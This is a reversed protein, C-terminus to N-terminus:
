EEDFSPLEMDESEDDHNEEVSENTNLKKLGKVKNGFEDLRKILEDMEHLTTVRNKEFDKVFDIEDGKAAKLLPKLKPVAYKTVVKSGLYAGFAIPIANSKSHRGGLRKGLYSQIGENISSMAILGLISYGTFSLINQIVVHGASTAPLLNVSTKLDKITRSAEKVTSSAKEYEHTMIYSKALKMKSKYTDKAEILSTKIENTIDTDDSELLMLEDDDDNVDKDESDYSENIFKNIEDSMGFDDIVSENAFNGVKLLTIQRKMEKLGKILKDMEALTTVRNKEFDKAIDVEEGKIAKVIPTLKPITYKVFRNGYVLGGLLMPVVKGSKVGDMLVGYSIRFLFSNGIFSLINQCVTYGLSTAPILKVTNKMTEVENIAEDVTNSAKKYDKEAIYVKILKMKTSYEAKCKVLTSKIDSIIEVDTGSAELHLIDDNEVDYESSETVTKLANPDAKNIADSTMDVCKRLTELQGAFKNLYPDFDTVEVSKGHVFLYLPKGFISIFNEVSVFSGFLTSLPLVVLGIQPFVGMAVISSVIVILAKITSVIYSMVISVAVKGLDSDKQAKKIHEEGVKILKSAEDLKQRAENYKKKSVLKNAEKVLEKVAIGNDRMEKAFSNARKKIDDSVEDSEMFLKYNNIALERVDFSETTEEIDLGILDTSELDFEEYLSYLSEM